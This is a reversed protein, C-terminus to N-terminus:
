LYVSEELTPDRLDIRDLFSTLKVNCADLIFPDDVAYMVYLNESDDIWISDSSRFMGIATLNPVRQDDFYFSDKM